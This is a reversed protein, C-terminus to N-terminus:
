GFLLGFLLRFKPAHSLFVPLRTPLDSSHSLRAPDCHPLTSSLPTFVSSPCRNAEFHLHSPPLPPYILGLMRNSPPESTSADTCLGPPSLQAAVPGQRNKWPRLETRGERQSQKRPQVMQEPSQVSREKVRSRGRRQVCVNGAQWGEEPVQETEKVARQELWM